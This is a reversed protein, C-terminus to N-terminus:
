DFMRTFKRILSCPYRKKRDTGKMAQELAFKVNNSEDRSICNFSMKFSFGRPFTVFPPRTKARCHEPESPVQLGSSVPRDPSGAKQDGM